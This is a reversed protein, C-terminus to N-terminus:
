KLRTKIISGSVYMVNGQFSYLCKKKKKKGHTCIPLMHHCEMEEEGASRKVWKEVCLASMRGKNASYNCTMM